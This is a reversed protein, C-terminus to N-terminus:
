IERSLNEPTLRPTLWKVAMVYRHELNSHTGDFLEFSVRDEPVGAARVARHFATAGLDLYYQDSRGADIWISHLGRLTEPREGAMVVPDYELWRQWIEPILHGTADFPIDVTGDENASYSAANGYLLIMDSGPCRGGTDFFRTLYRDWSGEYEDRLTRAAPPFERPYLVDFLCDGAHTALAGFLGPRLMPTIMAGYGGSSKGTIARHEAAALTRYRADVYPVIEDCLYSHYRGHGASDVFQSGGLRTWADVFVVIAPPAEGSTFLEDLLEPYTPRWAARNDWMTVQGSYGQLVYITPYRGATDDYGPPLYIWLPREYPDGLANGRLQDSVVTVKEM